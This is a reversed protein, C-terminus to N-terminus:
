PRPREAARGASAPGPPIRPADGGARAMGDAGCRELDALGARTDILAFSTMIGMFGVDVRRGHKLMEVILDTNPLGVHIMDMTMVKLEFDGLHQGDISLTAPHLSDTEFKWDDDTILLSFRDYQDISFILLRGSMFRATITCFVFAGQNDNSKLNWSRSFMKDPGPAAAGEGVAVLGAAALAVLAAVYRLYWRGM